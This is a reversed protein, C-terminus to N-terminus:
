NYIKKEKKLSSNILSSFFCHAGEGGGLREKLGILNEIPKKVM